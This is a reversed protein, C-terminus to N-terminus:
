YVAFSVYKWSLIKILTLLIPRNCILYSFDFNVKNPYFVCPPNDSEGCINENDETMSDEETDEQYFNPESIYQINSYNSNLSM